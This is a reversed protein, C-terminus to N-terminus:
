NKFWVASSTAGTIGPLRLHPGLARYILLLAVLVVIVWIIQIVKPPLAVGIVSDIVWLVLWVVLALVALYILLTIVNEVM